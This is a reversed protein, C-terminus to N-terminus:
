HVVSDAKEEMARGVCVINYMHKIYEVLEEKTADENLLADAAVTGVALLTISMEAKARIAELLHSDDISSEENEQIYIM